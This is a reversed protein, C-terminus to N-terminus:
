PTAPQLDVLHARPATQMTFADTAFRGIKDLM